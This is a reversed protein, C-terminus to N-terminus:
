QWETMNWRFPLFAPDFSKFLVHTYQFMYEFKMVCYWTVILYRMLQFEWYYSSTVSASYKTPGLERNERLASAVMTEPILVLRTGHQFRSDHKTLPSVQFGHHTQTMNCYTANCMLKLNHGGAILYCKFKLPVSKNKDNKHAIKGTILSQWHFITDVAGTLLSWIERQYM